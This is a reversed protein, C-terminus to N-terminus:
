TSPLSKLITGLNSLCFKGYPGCFWDLHGILYKRYAIDTAGHDQVLFNYYAIESLAFTVHALPLFLAILTKEKESLPREKHYGHLFSSMLDYSVADPNHCNMWRIFSREFAVAIDFGPCTRDSLGFDFAAIANQHHWVLNSGHWDGHGWLLSINNILPALPTHFFELRPFLDEKWHWNKLAPELGPQRAVWESLSEKISLSMLPFLPEALFRTKRAPAAYGASAKHLRALLQGASFAHHPSHYPEWSLTHKYLDDGPMPPYLEFVGSETVTVTQGMKNILPALLPFNKQKLYAIFNHEEQLILPPRLRPDHRKVFFKKGHPQCILAASSFGRPSHWLIKIPEDFTTYHCLVRNIIKETLLDWNRRYTRDDLGLANISRTETM